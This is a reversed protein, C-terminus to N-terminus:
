ILKDYFPLCYSFELYSFAFFNIYVVKPPKLTFMPAQLIALFVYKQIGLSFPQQKQGISEFIKNDSFIYDQNFASNLDAACNCICRTGFTWNFLIQWYSPSPLLRYGLVSTMKDMLTPCKSIFYLFVAFRFIDLATHAEDIYLRRKM